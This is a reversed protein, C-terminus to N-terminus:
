QGGFALRITDRQEPTLAPATAIIARVAEAAALEAADATHKAQADTTVALHCIRVTKNIRELRAIGMTLANEEPTKIRGM